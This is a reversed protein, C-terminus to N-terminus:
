RHIEVLVFSSYSYHAVRIVPPHKGLRVALRLSGRTRARMRTQGSFRQHEVALLMRTQDGIQAVVGLDHPPLLHETGGGGRGVAPPEQPGLVDPCHRYGGYCALASIRFDIMQNYEIMIGTDRVGEAPDLLFLNRGPAGSRLQNRLVEYVPVAIERHQRPTLDGATAPCGTDKGGALLAGAASVFRDFFRPSRALQQLAREGEPLGLAAFTLGRECDLAAPLPAARLRGALRTAVQQVAARHGSLSEEVAWRTLVRHALLRHGNSPSALLEAIIESGGSPDILPAAAMAMFAMPARVLRKAWADRSVANACSIGPSVLWTGATRWLDVDANASESFPWGTLIRCLSPSPRSRDLAAIVRFLEGVSLRKLVEPSQGAPDFIARLSATLAPDPTTLTTALAVARDPHHLALAEAAAEIADVPDDARGEARVLQWWRGLAGNFFREIAALGRPGLRCLSRVIRPALQLQRRASGRRPAGPELLAAVRDAIGPDGVRFLLDAFNENEYWTTSDLLTRVVEAGTRTRLVSPNRQVFDLFAVPDTFDLGPTDASLLLEPFRKRAAEELSAMESPTPTKVTVVPSSSRLAQAADVFQVQYTAGPRAPLTLAHWRGPAPETAASQGSSGSAEARLRIPTDTLAYLHIADPTGVVAEELVGFTALSASNGRSSVSHSPTPATGTEKPGALALLMVLALIGLVAVLGAASRVGPRAGGQTSDARIAALEAVVQDISPRTGVDRSLMRMVLRSLRRPTEPRLAALPQVEAREIRDLWELVTKGIYPMQGSIMWYSTVGLSYIDTPLSAMEGRIQEPSMFPLTGMIQGTATLPTRDPSSALGLDVLVANTQDRLVINDPKIDRHAIRAQHLCQVGLAVQNIIQMCWQVPAEEREELHVTLNTGQILEMAFYLDDGEVGGDLFKPLNPHSLSILLDRERLFRAQGTLTRAEQLLIKLAVDRNLSPQHARYVAGMGGRSILSRIQFGGLSEGPLACM